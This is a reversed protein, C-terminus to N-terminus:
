ITKFHSKYCNISSCKHLSMSRKCLLSLLLFVFTFEYADNKINGGGGGGGGAGGGWFFFFFFFQLSSFCLILGFVCWASCPSHFFFLNLRKKFSPINTHKLTIKKSETM